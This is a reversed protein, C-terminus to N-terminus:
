INGAVVELMRNWDLYKNALEMIRDESINRISEVSREYFDMDVGASLVYIWADSVSM